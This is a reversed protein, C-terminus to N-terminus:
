LKNNKICREIVLRYRSPCPPAGKGQVANPARQGALGLERKVQAIWCTKVSSPKVGLEESVCSQLQKYTPVPTVSIPERTPAKASMFDGVHFPANGASKVLDGVTSGVSRPEDVLDPAASNLSPMVTIKREVETTDPDEALAASRGIQVYRFPDGDM